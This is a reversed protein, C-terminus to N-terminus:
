DELANFLTEAEEVTIRKDQLMKLIMLREEDSAGKKGAPRVVPAPPRPPIHSPEKGLAEGFDLDFKFGGKQELEEQM